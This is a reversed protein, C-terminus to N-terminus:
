RFLLRPHRLTVLVHGSSGAQAAGPTVSAGTPVDGGQGGAGGSGGGGGGGSRTGATVPTGAPVSGAAGGLATATGLNEVIPAIMHIVGGGGGGGPGAASGSGGGAGGDAEITATAQNTVSTASALIIAGGGGGGGGSGGSDTGDAIITGLNQIPGQVLFTVGGGGAGAGGLAAAGGSGARIGINLMVRTEFESIGDGGAGGSRDSSADGAEGAAAPQTNLGLGAPQTAGDMTTSDFGSRGGGQAGSEILITGNNILSGTCRIVAGSQIRLTVGAAVSLDTWQQNADDATELRADGTVHRAGSSGDGFLLIPADAGDQGDAGNQGAAGDRGDAGSPGNAGDVGAAGRCDLVNVSGDGNTDENGDAIGNGNLDWCALVVPATMQTPNPCGGILVFPLAVALVRFTRTM